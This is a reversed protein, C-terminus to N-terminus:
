KNTTRRIQKINGRVKTQDMKKRLQPFKTAPKRGSNPKNQSMLKHNGSAFSVTLM